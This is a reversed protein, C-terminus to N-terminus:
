RATGRPAHEGATPRRVFRLPEVDGTLALRREPIPNGTLQSRHCRMARRQRTRDVALYLDTEGVGRGQFAAGFEEDLTRAVDERVTWALVPLDLDEAVRVAAETARAHDPHGTVGGEDFVLLLDSGIAHPRIAVALEAVPVADLGGDPYDLLTTERIGLEAAALALETSRSEGLTPDTAGLTSAEGRTLCVVDVTTALQTYTSIVAGLGFSEDDPHACVALVRHAAPLADRSSPSMPAADILAM